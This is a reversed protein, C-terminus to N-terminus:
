DYAAVLAEAVRHTYGIMAQNFIRDAEPNAAYFAFPDMGFHHAFAPKGTQVSFSFDNWAQFLENGYAMALSRMSDPTGSRLLATVPTLAYTEPTPEALVGISALARLLRHLSQPHSDSTAALDRASAPGDALLDALGLRAFEAIAQAAWYGTMLPLLTAEPPLGQGPADAHDPM